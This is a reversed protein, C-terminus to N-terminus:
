TPQNNNKKNPLLGKKWTIENEGFKKQSGPFKSIARPKTSICEVSAKIYANVFNVYEDNPTHTASTGQLSVLKKSNGFHSQMPYQSGTM